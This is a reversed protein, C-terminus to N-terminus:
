IDIEFLLHTYIYNLHNLIIKPAFFLAPSDYRYDFYLTVSLFRMDMSLPFRFRLSLISSIKLLEM